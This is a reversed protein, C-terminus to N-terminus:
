MFSRFREKLDRGGYEQVGCPMNPRPPTLERTATVESRQAAHGGLTRKGGGGWELDIPEAVERLVIGVQAIEQPLVPTLVLRAVGYV